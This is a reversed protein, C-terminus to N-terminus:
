VFNLFQILLRCTYVTKKTTKPYALYSIIKEKSLEDTYVIKSQSVDQGEARILYFRRRNEPLLPFQQSDAFLGGGGSCMSQKSERFEYERNPSFNWCYTKRMPYDVIASPEASAALKKEEATRALQYIYEKFQRDVKLSKQTRNSYWVDSNHACYRTLNFLSNTM